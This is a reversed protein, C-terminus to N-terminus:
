GGSQILDSASRGPMAGMFELALTLTRSKVGFGVGTICWDSKLGLLQHYHLSLTEM